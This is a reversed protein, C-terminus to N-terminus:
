TPPSTSVSSSKSRSRSGIRKRPAVPQVQAFGDGYTVLFREGDAQLLAVACRPSLGQRSLVELPEHLRFARRSSRGRALRWGAGGLLALALLGRALGVVSLGGRPAALSLLLVLVTAVLLKARPGSQWHRALAPSM